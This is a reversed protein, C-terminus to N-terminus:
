PIAFVADARDDFWGLMAEIRNSFSGSIRESMGPLTVAKAVSLAYILLYDGADLVAVISRLKEKGILPIIGYSMASLNTQVLILAGPRAQYDYRYINDGFTLDKQRAYLTYDDPPSLPPRFSPDAQVKKSDPGDIVVSSEYFTRMEGRSISFYRLGTLTSIALIENYLADREAATWAQNVNPASKTYLSLNEVMVTPELERIIAQSLEGIYSDRPLLLPSAGKRYQSETISEGNLLAALARAGQEAGVLRELDAAFVSVAELLCFVVLLPTKHRSM